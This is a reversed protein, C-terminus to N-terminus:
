RPGQEGGEGRRSGGCAPCGGVQKRERDEKRKKTFCKICTFSQTESNWVWTRQVAPTLFRFKTDEKRECAACLPILQAGM